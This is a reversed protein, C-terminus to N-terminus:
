DGYIASGENTNRNGYFACPGGDAEGCILIDGEVVGGSAGRGPLPDAVLRLVEGACAHLDHLWKRRDLGPARQQAMAPRGEQGM